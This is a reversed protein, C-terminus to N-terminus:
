SSHLAQRAPPRDTASKTRWFCTKFASCGHHVPDPRTQPDRPLAYLALQVLGSAIQGATEFNRPYGKTLTAVSLSREDESAPRACRPWPSAWSESATADRSRRLGFGAEAGRVQGQSGRERHGCCRRGFPSENACRPAGHGGITLGRQQQGGAAREVRLSARVPTWSPRCAPRPDPSRDAFRSAPPAPGSQPRVRYPSRGSETTSDGRSSSREDRLAQLEQGVDDDRRPEARGVESRTRVSRALRMRCSLSTGPTLASATNARASYPGCGYPWREMPELARQGAHIDVLDAPEVGLPVVGRAGGRRHAGHCRSIRGARRLHRQRRAARLRRTMASRVGAPTASPPRAPRGQEAARSNMTTRGSGCWVSSLHTMEANRAPRIVEV